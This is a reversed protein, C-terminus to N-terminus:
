CGRARSGALYPLLAIGAWTDLQWHTIVCGLVSLWLLAMVVLRGKLRRLGFFMPTWLTNSRLKRRGFRWPM